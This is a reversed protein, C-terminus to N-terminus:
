DKPAVDRMKILWQGNVRVLDDVDRGAAAVRVPVNPGAQAFVTLWYAELRAHDKDIFELYSNATIHYMAPRKQGKAEADATRQRFDTIMKKLADHGKIANAGSGFQGDPTYTAAYADANETDLARTYQWMLKEIQARDQAERQVDNKATAALSGLFAVLLLTAGALIKKMM